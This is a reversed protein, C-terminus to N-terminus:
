IAIKEMREKISLISDRFEKQIILMDAPLVNLESGHDHDHHDHHDHDGGEVEVHNKEWYDYSAQIQNMKAIFINEADTLERGQLVLQNKKQILQDFKPKLEKEIKVADLHIQTAEQLIKEDAKNTSSDCAVFILSIFFIYKLNM